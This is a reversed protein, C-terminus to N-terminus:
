STQKFAKVIGEQWQFIYCPNVSHSSSNIPIVRHFGVTNLEAVNFDVSEPGTEARAMAKSIVYVLGCSCISSLIQM